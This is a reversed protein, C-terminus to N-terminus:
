DYAGAAQMSASALFFSFRTGARCGFLMGGIITAGSRSHGPNARLM